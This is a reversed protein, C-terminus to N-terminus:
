STILKEEKKNEKNFILGLQRYDLFYHVIISSSRVDQFVFLFLAIQFYFTIKRKKKKYKM